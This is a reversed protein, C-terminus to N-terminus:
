IELYTILYYTILYSALKVISYFLETEIESLDNEEITKAPRYKYIELFTIPLGGV